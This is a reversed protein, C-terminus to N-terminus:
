LRRFVHGRGGLCRAAALPYCLQLVLQLVLWGPIVYFARWEVTRLIHGPALATLRDADAGAGIDVQFLLRCGSGVTPLLWFLRRGSDRLSATFPLSLCM